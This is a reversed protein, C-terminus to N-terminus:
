MVPIAIPVGINAPDLNAADDGFIWTEYQDVREDEDQNIEGGNDADEENAKHTDGSSSVSRSYKGNVYASESSSDGLDNSNVIGQAIDQDDVESKIEINTNTGDSQESRDVVEQALEQDNEQDISRQEINNIDEEERVEETIGVKELTTDVTDGVDSLQAYAVPTPVVGASIIAGGVLAFIALILPTTVTTRTTM